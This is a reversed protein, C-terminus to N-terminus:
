MGGGMWRVRRVVRREWGVNVVWMELFDSRSEWMTGGEESRRRRRRRERAPGFLM